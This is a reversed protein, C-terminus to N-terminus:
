RKRFPAKSSLQVGHVRLGSYQEIKKDRSFYNKAIKVESVDIGSRTLLSCDDESRVSTTAIILCIITSLFAIKKSVKSYIM